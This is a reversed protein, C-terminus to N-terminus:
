TPRGPEAEDQWVVTACKGCGFVRAPKGSRTQLLVAGLKNEDWLPSMAATKKVGAQRGNKARPAGTTPLIL